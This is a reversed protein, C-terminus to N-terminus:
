VCKVNVQKLEFISYEKESVGKVTTKDDIHAIKVSVLWNNKCLLFLLVRARRMALYHFVWTFNPYM